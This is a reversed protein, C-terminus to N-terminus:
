RSGGAGQPRRRGETAIPMQALIPAPLPQVINWHRPTNDSSDAM